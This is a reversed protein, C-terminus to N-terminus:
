HACIASSAIEGIVWSANPEGQLMTEVTSWLKPFIAFEWIIVSKM